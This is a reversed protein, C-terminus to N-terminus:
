SSRDKLRKDNRVRTCYDSRRLGFWEYNHYNSRCFKWISLEGNSDRKKSHAHSSSLVVGCLKCMSYTNSGRCMHCINRSGAKTPMTAVLYRKYETQTFSFRGNAQNEAITQLNNYGLMNGNKLFNKSAKEELQEEMELGKNKKCTSGQDVIVTM